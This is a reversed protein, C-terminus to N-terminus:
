LHPLIHALFLIITRKPRGNTAPTQGYTGFDIIAALKPDTAPSIRRVSIAYVSELLCASALSRCTLRVYFLMGVM